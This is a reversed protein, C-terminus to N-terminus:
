RSDVGLSLGGRHGHGVVAGVSGGGGRRGGTRVADGRPQRGDDLGEEAALQGHAELRPVAGDGTGGVGRGDDQAVGGRQAPEHAVGALEAEGLRVDRALEVDLAVQEVAETADPRRGAREAPHGGRPRCRRRRRSSRCGSPRRGRRRRAAARAARRAPGAGRAGACALGAVAAGDLVVVVQGVVEVGEDEVRVHGVGAAVPRAGLGAVGDLVRLAVLEVEDAALEADLGAATVEVDAAAPARERQVRGLLEARLDDAHRDRALLLREDVLPDALAAELIPDLDPQLVVALHGVAGEVRDGRDLHALVDPLAVVRREGALDVAQQPRATARQDLLHRARRAGAAAREDLGEDRGVHVHPGDALGDVEDLLGAELDAVDVRQALVVHQVTLAQYSM